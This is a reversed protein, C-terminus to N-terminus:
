RRGAEAVAGKEERSCGVWGRGVQVPRCCLSERCGGGGGAIDWKRKRFGM